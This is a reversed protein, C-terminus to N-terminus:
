VTENKVLMEFKNNFNIYIKSFNNLYDLSVRSYNASFIKIKFLLYQNTKNSYNTFLADALGVSFNTLFYNWRYFIKKQEKFVFSKFLKFSVMTNLTLFVICLYAFPLTHCYNSSFFMGQDFKTTDESTCAEFALNIQGVNEEM